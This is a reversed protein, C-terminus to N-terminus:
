QFPCRGEWSPPVAVTLRRGGSEDPELSIKLVDDWLYQGMREPWEIVLAAEGRADDLGLELTEHAEDIRYLDIHWLPITVDPLAYPIVIAFSPSPADDVLGLASLMGRAFSTKGAGLDGSLAVVDGIQLSKALLVGAAATAEPNALLM